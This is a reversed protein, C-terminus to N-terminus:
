KNQGSNSKKVSINFEPQYEEIVAGVLHLPAGPQQLFAKLATKHKDSVVAMLFNHAGQTKVGQSSGNLFKNYATLNVNFEFEQDGVELEIKQESAM